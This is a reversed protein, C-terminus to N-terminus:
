HSRGIRPHLSGLPYNAVRVNLGALGSLEAHSVSVESNRKIWSCDLCVSRAEEASIAAV